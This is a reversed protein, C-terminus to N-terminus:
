VNSIALRKLSFLIVQSLKEFIVLLLPWNEDFFVVPEETFVTPRAMNSLCKCCDKIEQVALKRIEDPITELRSLILAEFCGLVDFLERLHMEPHIPRMSQSIKTDINSYAYNPPGSCKWTSPLLVNTFIKVLKKSLLAADYLFSVERDRQVHDSAGTFTVHTGANQADRWTLVPWQVQPWGWFQNMGNM